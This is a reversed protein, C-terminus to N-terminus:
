IFYCFFCPTKQMKLFVIMVSALQANVSKEAGSGGADSGGTGGGGEQLVVDHVGVILGCAGLLPACLASLTVALATSQRSFGRHIM